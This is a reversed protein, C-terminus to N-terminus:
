TDKTAMMARREARKREKKKANKSMPKPNNDGINIVKNGGTRISDKKNSKEKVARETRFASLVLNYQQNTIRTNPNTEVFHGKKGLFDVITKIGVNLETAVKKLRINKFEKNSYFDQRNQLYDANNIESENIKSSTGVTHSENEINTLLKCFDSSHAKRVVLHYAEETKYNGKNDVYLSITSDNVNDIITQAATAKLAKVVNKDNLKANAAIEKILGNTADILGQVSTSKTKKHLDSMANSMNNVDAKYDTLHNDTINNLVNLLEKQHYVNKVTDKAIQKKRELTETKDLEERIREEDIADIQYHDHIGMILRFLVSKSLTEINYIM